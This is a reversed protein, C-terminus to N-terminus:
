RATVIEHLMALALVVATMIVIVVKIEVEIMVTLVRAGAMERGADFCENRSVKKLTNKLSFTKLFILM